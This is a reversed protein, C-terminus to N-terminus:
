QAFLAMAGEHRRPLTQGHAREGGDGERDRDDSASAHSGDSGLRRGGGIQHEAAAVDERL